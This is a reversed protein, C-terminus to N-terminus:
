LGEYYLRDADFRLLDILWYLETSSLGEVDKKVKDYTDGVHEEMYRKIKSM